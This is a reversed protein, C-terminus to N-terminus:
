ADVEAHLDRVRADVERGLVDVERALEALEGRLAEREPRRGAGPDGARGLLDDVLEQGPDLALQEGLLLQRHAPDLLSPGGLPRRGPEGARPPRGRREPCRLATGERRLGAERELGDPALAPRAVGHDPGRPLELAEAE